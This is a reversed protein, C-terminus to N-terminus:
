SSVGALCWADIPDVSLDTIKKVHSLDLKTEAAPLRLINRDIFHFLSLLLLLLIAFFRYNNLKRRRRKEKLHNKNIVVSPFALDIKPSRRKEM